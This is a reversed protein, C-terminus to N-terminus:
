ICWSLLSFVLSEILHKRLIEWDRVGSVVKHQFEKVVVDVWRAVSDVLAEITTECITHRQLGFELEIAGVGVMLIESGRDLVHVEAGNRVHGVLTRKDDVSSLTDNNRLQM